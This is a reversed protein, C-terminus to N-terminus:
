GVGLRGLTEGSWDASATEVKGFEKNFWFDVGLLSCFLFSM